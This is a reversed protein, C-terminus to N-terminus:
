KVSQSHKCVCLGNRVDPRVHRRLDLPLGLALQQRADELGRGLDTSPSVAKKGTKM